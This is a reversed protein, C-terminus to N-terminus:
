FSVAMVIHIRAYPQLSFPTSYQSVTPRSRYHLYRPGARRTKTLIFHCLSQSLDNKRAYSSRTRDDRGSVASHDRALCLCSESRVSSTTHPTTHPTPHWLLPAAGGAESRGVPQRGQARCRRLGALWTRGARGHSGVGAREFHLNNAAKV